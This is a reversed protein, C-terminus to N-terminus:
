RCLYIQLNHQQVHGCILCVDGTIDFSEKVTISSPCGHVHGIPRAKMSASSTVGNLLIPQTDVAYISGDGGGIIILGNHLINIATVGQRLVAKTPGMNTLNVSCLDVQMCCAELSQDRVCWVHLLFAICLLILITFCYLGPNYAWAEQAVKKADKTCFQWAAHTIPKGRYQTAGMVVTLQCYFLHAGAACRRHVYWLVCPSREQRHRPM